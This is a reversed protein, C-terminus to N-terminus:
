EEEEKDGYVIYYAGIFCAAVWSAAILFGSIAARLEDYWKLPEEEWPFQILLLFPISLLVFFVIVLNIKKRM